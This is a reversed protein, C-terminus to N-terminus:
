KSELSNNKYSEILKKNYEELIQLQNKFSTFTMPISPNLYDLFLKNRNEELVMLENLVLDISYIKRELEANLIVQKTNLQNLKYILESTQTIDSKINKIEELDSRFPGISIFYYVIGLIITIVLTIKLLNPTKLLNDSVDKDIKINFLGNAFNILPM